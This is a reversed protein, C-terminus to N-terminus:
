YYILRPLSKAQEIWDVIESEGPLRRVLSRQENVEVIRQYLNTPNRQALEIVTDVGSVELLDAYEQGVGRIRYLDIQNAWTLIDKESLGTEQAVERRGKRTMCRAFYALATPMDSARLKQGRVEGIGEVYEIQRKYEDLRGISKLHAELRTLLDDLDLSDLNSLTAEDFGEWRITASRTAAVAAVEVGTDIEEDLMADEDEAESDTQDDAAVVAAAAGIVAARGATGVWEESRPDTDVATSSRTVVTEYSTTTAPAAAPVQEYDSGRDLLLLIILLLEIAKTALGLVSSFSDGGNFVFYLIITLATYFILIWRITSRGAGTRGSFYLLAILLVYGVGDLAFMIPLLGTGWNGAALAFHIIATALTLLVIVWQLGSLRRM